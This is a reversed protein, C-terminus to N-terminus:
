SPKLAEEPVVLRPVTIASPKYDRILDKAFELMAYCMMKDHIPGNVNIQGGPGLTITLVIHGDEGKPPGSGGM